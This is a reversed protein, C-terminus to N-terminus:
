NAHIKHSTIDSKVYVIMGRKHQYLSPISQAHSHSALQSGTTGSSVMTAFANSKPKILPQIQWVCFVLQSSDFLKLSVFVLRVTGFNIKGVFLFVSLEMGPMEKRVFIVIDTSNIEELRLVNM